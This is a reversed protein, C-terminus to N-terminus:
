QTHIKGARTTRIRPPLPARIPAAHAYTRNQRAGIHNVGYEFSAPSKPNRPTTDRTAFEKVIAPRANM